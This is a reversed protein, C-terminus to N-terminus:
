EKRPFRGISRGIWFPITALGATLLLDLDAQEQTRDGHVGGRYFVAAIDLVFWLLLFQVTRILVRRFTSPSNGM